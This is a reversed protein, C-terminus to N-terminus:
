CRCSSGAGTPYVGAAVRVRVVAILTMGLNLLATVVTSLPIVLRPFRMKRLLSERAVLSTVADGTAEAFFQFLVM